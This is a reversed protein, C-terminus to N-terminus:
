NSKAVLDPCKGKLLENVWVYIKYGNIEENYFRDKQLPYLMGGTIMTHQISVPMFRCFRDPFKQQLENTVRLLRSQYECPKYGSFITGIILDLQDEFLAYICQQCDNLGFEIAYIPDGNLYPIAGEPFNQITGWREMVEPMQFQSQPSPMIGPGADNIALIPRGFLKWTYYSHLLTGYGGASSGTVVVRDWNNQLAYRIAVIGNVFGVHYITKTSSSNSDFYKVVRNGMHIDGTNYPVFVMTWNRFPNKPNKVDFIGGRYYLNLFWTKSELAVVTGIGLLPKCNEINTCLMPKCTTYDACAGGGELFILLNNEAGRRVLIFTEKGLGNVCPSPLKVKVWDIGDNPDDIPLSNLAPMSSIDIEFPNAYTEKVIEYSGLAFVPAIALILGVFVLLKM